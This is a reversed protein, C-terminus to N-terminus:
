IINHPSRQRGEAIIKQSVLPLYKLITVKVSAYIIHLSLFLQLIFLPGFFFITEKHFYFETVEM